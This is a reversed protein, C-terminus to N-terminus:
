HKPKLSAPRIIIESMWDGELNDGRHKVKKVKFSGTLERSTIHVPHGPRIKPHLLTRVTVDPDKGKRDPKGFEPSGILGTSENIEYEEGDLDDERLFVAQDDQISYTYGYPKVLDNVADQHSGLLAIGGSVIGKFVDSNKIVDPVDKGADKLLDGIIDKRATGAAYSKNVRGYRLLRGGDAGQITTVWDPGNQASLAYTIDGSFLVSMGGIYGAELTLKLPEKKFASRTSENLNTIKILCQNPHKTLNHEIEFEIRLDEIVIGRDGEETRVDFKNSFLPTTTSLVTVRARRGFLIEAAM